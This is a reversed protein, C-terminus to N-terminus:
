QHGEPLSKQMQRRSNQDCDDAQVLDKQTRDETSLTAKMRGATMVENFRDFLVARDSAGEFADPSDAATM